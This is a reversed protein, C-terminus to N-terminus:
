KPQKNLTIAQQTRDPKSFIFILIFFIGDFKYICSPRLDIKGQVLMSLVNGNVDAELEIDEEAKLIM